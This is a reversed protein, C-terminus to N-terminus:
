VDRFYGPLRNVLHDRLRRLLYFRRQRVNNEQMRLRDAVERDVHGAHWMTLLAQDRASLEDFWAQYVRIVQQHGAIQEPDLGTPGPNEIGHIPVEVIEIRPRDAKLLDKVRNLTVSHLFGTLAYRGPDDSDLARCQLLIRWANKSLHDWVEQTYDEIRDPPARRAIWGVIKRHWQVIFQDM